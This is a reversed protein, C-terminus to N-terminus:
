TQYHTEVSASLPSIMNGGSAVSWTFRVDVTNFTTKNWTGGTDTIVPFQGSAHLIGQGRCLTTGRIALDFDTLLYSGAATAAPVALNLLATGNLYFSITLTGGGTWSNLQAYARVKVVMGVNTSNGPYVRSGQSNANFYSTPTTTNSVTFAEYQTAASLKLPQSRATPGTFDPGISFVLQGYGTEDTCASGINASSFTGLM